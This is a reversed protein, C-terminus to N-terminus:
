VEYCRVGTNSISIPTIKRNLIIKSTDYGSKTIMLFFGGNGAGCLKHALIEKNNNLVNDIGAVTTNKITLPNSEKKKKWGENIINTFSKTDSKLIAKHMNDVLSLLSKSKKQNINKLLRTSKRNIKTHILYMDIKDFIDSNLNEIEVIDPKKIHLRNIGGVGCGFSDQYGVLPNFKREILISEKCIDFNTKKIKQYRCVSKILGVLYSSSSALGSGSSFVDSTLSCTCPTTKFHRFCERVLDNKINCLNKVEERVSYNIIYKHLNSSFGLVDRHLTTYTRLNISCNIVSGYENKDIFNQLDTSGGVFSVRLPCSSIIM